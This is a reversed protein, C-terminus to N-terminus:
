LLPFSSCSGDRYGQELWREINERKWHLADRLTGLKRSPLITTCRVEPPVPRRVGFMKRFTKVSPKLWWSPIEPLAHLALIENAGLELAAWVPLPNLLGGDACFRGDIRVPRFVLPVACSAALHRWTVDRGRYIRPKLRLAETVVVAFDLRLPHSTLTRLNERFGKFNALHKRRWLDKLMEPTAGCAILYGNLSGISAGVILDPRWHDAFAAWAGAQWAGFLGGGSLVLARMVISDYGTGHIEIRGAISGINGAYKCPLFGAVAEHWEAPALRRGSLNARKQVLNRWGREERFRRFWGAGHRAQPEIEVAEIFGVLKRIRAFVRICIVPVCYHVPAFPIRAIGGIPEALGPSMGNVLLKGGFASRNIAPKRAGFKPCGVPVRLSENGETLAGLLLRTRFMLPGSHMNLAGLPLKKEIM